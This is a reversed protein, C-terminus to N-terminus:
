SRWWDPLARLVILYKNYVRLSFIGGENFQQDAFHDIGITNIGAKLRKCHLIVAAILHTLATKRDLRKM